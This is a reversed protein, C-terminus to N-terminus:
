VIRGEAVSVCIGIPNRMNLLAVPGTVRLAGVTGSGLLLLLTIVVVNWCLGVPPAVVTLTDTGAPMVGPSYVTGVVAYLGFEPALATRDIDTVTDDLWTMVTGDSPTGVYMAVRGFPSFQVPPPSPVNPTKEWGSGYKPVPLSQNTQDVPPPCLWYGISQELRTYVASTSAIPGGSISPM